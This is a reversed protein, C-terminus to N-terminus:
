IDWAQVNTQEAIRGDELTLMASCSVKLGDPYACSELFAIHDHDASIADVHHTMARGCIDAYYRAIQDRGHLDMPRSPPHDRDIFHIVADDAYFSLLADADRGELARTLDQISVPQM